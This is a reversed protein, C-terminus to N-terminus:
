FSPPIEQELRRAESRIDLLLILSHSHSEPLKSRHWTPLSCVLEPAIRLARIGRESVHGDVFEFLIM